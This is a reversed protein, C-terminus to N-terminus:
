ALTEERLYALGALLERDTMVFLRAGGAGAEHQAWQWAPCTFVDKPGWHIDKDGVRSRGEGDLVVCIQAATSRRQHTARQAPLGWQYCDISPLVPGGSMGDVYRLWRSGDETPAADSLAKMARGSEYRYVSGGARDASDPPLNLALPHLPAVRTPAPAVGNPAQRDLEFFMTDLHACLPLDLGDFWVMREDGAHHHRHWTWAPTLVLDGAAMECVEDNVTTTAGRGQLVLRLAAITHRHAAATEGPMLTQLGGLLNRTTAAAPLSSDILLLVRREADEMSVEDIARDILGNMQLWSWHLASPVHAPARRTIRQYRDWLPQVSAGALTSVFDSVPAVPGSHTDM